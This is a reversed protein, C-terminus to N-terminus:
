PASRLVALSRYGYHRATRVMEHHAFRLRQGDLDSPAGLGYLLARRARVREVKPIPLVEFLRGRHERTRLADGILGGLARDLELAPGELAEGASIPVALADVDLSRPAEGTLSISDM